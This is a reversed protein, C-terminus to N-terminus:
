LNDIYFGNPILQTGFQRIFDGTTSYIFAAGNSVYDKADALYITGDHVKFGYLTVLGDTSPQIFATAPLTTDTTGMAYVNGNLTYYLTGNDIELNGPHEGAAFDTTTTVANTNLNITQLKGLTEDGTWDPKGASIVYLTGNHAVMGDPVDGVPITTTLSSTATNIVSITNGHGYGGKHAVYLTGNNVLLREPGEAVAITSEVTNNALNLVAIYDDATDFPDGWNSIFAKDGSFVMYRPNLIQGTISTIHEFSYRDVVEISSSNSVVIYAEEDHFAMSQAVDGLGTGNVAFFINHYTDEDADVFSVSANNGNFSGENLIFLGQDYTGLPEQPADDRDDSTCSQFLTAIAIAVITTYRTITKM